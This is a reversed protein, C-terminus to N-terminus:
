HNNWINGNGNEQRLVGPTYDDLISGGVFERLLSNDPILDLRKLPRVWSLFALLRKAEIYRPSGPEVQRLLPEAVPRLVALEYVLASNFMVDANEQYPFIWAAEGERVAPWRSLTDLASYGRTDADRVMRRLLRIDTTPVRNHRDINLQTLCSVYLRFVKEAPIQRVLEPNLGHIGEVIIVHEPTLQVTPGPERTGSVFNFTPIQVEQCDMMKLLHDNFLDLDVARLNEFDLNGAADRPTDERNLFYNDMGLTYPKLGHAMLQVALRKSSTTKGSSSPGAILVLHVDPRRAVIMDAMDAFRSEHLAEAALILERTRGDRLAANLAGIDEVGLLRNWEGAEEFV